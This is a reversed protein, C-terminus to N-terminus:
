CESMSTTTSKLAARSGKGAEVRTPAVVSPFIYATAMAAMHGLTRKPDLVQEHNRHPEDSDKVRCLYLDMRDESHSLSHHTSTPTRSTAQSAKCCPHSTASSQIALLRVDVSHNKRRIGLTMYHVDTEGLHALTGGSNTLTSKMPTM